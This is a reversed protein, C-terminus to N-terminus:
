ADVGSLAYGDIIVLQLVTMMDAWELFGDPRAANGRLVVLPGSSASSGKGAEEESALGGAADGTRDVVALVVELSGFTSPDIDRLITVGSGAVRATGWESSFSKENM